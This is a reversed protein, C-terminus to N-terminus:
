SKLFTFLCGFGERYLFSNIPFWTERLGTVLHLSPPFPSFFSSPLFPPMEVSMEFCLDVVPNQVPTWMIWTAQFIGLLFIFDLTRADKIKAGLSGEHTLVSSYILLNISVYKPLYMYTYEHYIYFLLDVGQWAESDLSWKFCIGFVFSCM